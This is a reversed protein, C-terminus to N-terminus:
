MWGHSMMFIMAGTVLAAAWLVAYAFALTMHAMRKGGLGTMALLVLWPPIAYIIALHINMIWDPAKGGMSYGLRTLVVVAISSVWTGLAHTAAIKKHKEKEQRLALAGAWVLLATLIPAIGEVVYLLLKGKM